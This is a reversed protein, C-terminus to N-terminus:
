RVCHGNSIDMLVRDPRQSEFGSDDAGLASINATVSRGAIRYLIGIDSISIDSLRYIDSLHKM